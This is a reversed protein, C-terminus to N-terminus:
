MFYRVQTMEMSVFDQLKMQSVREILLRAQDYFRNHEVRKELMVPTQM